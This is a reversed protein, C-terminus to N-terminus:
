AAPPTPKSYETSEPQRIQSNPGGSNRRSKVAGDAGTRKLRCVWPPKGQWSRRRTQNILPFPRNDHTSLILGVESNEAPLRCPTQVEVSYTPEIHVLPRSRKKLM